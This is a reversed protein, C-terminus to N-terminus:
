GAMNLCKGPGYLPVVWDVCRSLHGVVSAAVVVSSSSLAVTGLLVAPASLLHRRTLLHTTYHAVQYGRKAAIYCCEIQKGGGRKERVHYPGLQILRYVENGLPLVTSNM